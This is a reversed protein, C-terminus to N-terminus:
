MASMYSKAEEGPDPLGSVRWANLCNCFLRHICNLEMGQKRCLQSMAPPVGFQNFHARLAYIIRWHDQTLSGLENLEAIQWAVSENWLTSDVLLGMEDLEPLIVEDFKRALM